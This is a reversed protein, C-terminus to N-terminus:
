SLDWCVKFSLSIHLVTLQSTSTKRIGEQVAPPVPVGTGLLAKYCTIRQRHRTHVYLSNHCWEEGVGSLWYSSHETHFHNLMFALSVQSEEDQNFGPLPCCYAERFCLTRPIVKRSFTMTPESSQAWALLIWM